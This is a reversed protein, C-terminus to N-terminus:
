NGGRRSLMHKKIKKDNDQRLLYMEIAKEMQVASLEPKAFRLIYEEPVGKRMAEIVQQLQPSSLTNTELVYSTLRQYKKQYGDKTSIEVDGSELDDLTVRYSAMVKEYRILHLHEEEARKKEAETRKEEESLEETQDDSSGDIQGDTAVKPDTTVDSISKKKNGMTDGGHIYERLRDLTVNKGFADEVSVGLMACIRLLDIERLDKSKVDLYRCINKETLEYALGLMLSMYRAQDLDLSMKEFGYKKVLKSFLAKQEENM